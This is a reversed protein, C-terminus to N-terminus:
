GLPGMFPEGDYLAAANELADPWPARPDPRQAAPRPTGQWGIQEMGFYVQLTHGEPDIAHFAYDIGAHLEPPLEVIRVGREQLFTRADRLQRYTAVQMGITMTTSDSRLGLKARLALPALVLSHHESGARLFVCREGAVRTEETVQLGMTRTYSDLAGGLDGVFLGLPAIRTVRFPRALMQGEVEYTRPLTDYSGQGTNIDIGNALAERVEDVESPQPLTAKQRLRIKPEMAEPKSRGPWGIQEMGYFLENTHGDPDFYYVHWNSGPWDRGGREVQVGQARLWEDGRVIEELSGVQWSIQNVTVEPFRPPGGIMAQRVKANFLVFSHHDTGYRMFYGGPDGLSPLISPDKVRPGFDIRDSLALGMVDFYFPVTKEINVCNFGMHGLRRVKFPRELLVGGVDYTASSTEIM